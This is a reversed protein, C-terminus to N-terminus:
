EPNQELKGNMLPAALQQQSLTLTCFTEILGSDLM